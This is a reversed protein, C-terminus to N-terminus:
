MLDKLVLTPRRSCAGHYSVPMRFFAWPFEYIFPRVFDTRRNNKNDGQRYGDLSLAIVHKTEQFLCRMSRPCRCTVALDFVVLNQTSQTLSHRSPSCPPCLKECVQDSMSGNLAPASKGVDKFAKSEDVVLSAGDFRQPGHVLCPNDM